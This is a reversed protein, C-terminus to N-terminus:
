TMKGSGAILQCIGDAIRVRVERTRACICFSGTSGERRCFVVMAAAMVLIITILIPITIIGSRLLPTEMSTRLWVTHVSRNPRQVRRHSEPTHNLPTSPHTLHHNNNSAKKNANQRTSYLMPTLESLIDVM